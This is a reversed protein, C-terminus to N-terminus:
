LAIHWRRQLKLLRGRYAFILRFRHMKFDNLVDISDNNVREEWDSATVLVNSENLDNHIVSLRLKATDNRISNVHEEYWKFVQEIANKDKILGEGKSKLADLFMRVDEFNRVDWLSERTALTCYLTKAEEEISPNEPNWRLFTESIIGVFEHSQAM